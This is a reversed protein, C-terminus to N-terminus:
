VKTAIASEMPLVYVEPYIGFSPRVKTGVLATGDFEYLQNVQGRVKAINQFAMNRAARYTTIFLDKGDVDFLGYKISPGVFCNTQGYRGILDFGLKSFCLDGVYDGTAPHSCDSSGNQGESEGGSRKCWSGVDAGHDQHM